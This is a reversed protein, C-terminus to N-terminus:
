CFVAYSVKVHSSNLRTSKRDGVLWTTTTTPVPADPAWPRSRSSYAHSLLRMRAPEPQADDLRPLGTPVRVPVEPFEQGLILRDSRFHSTYPFRVLHRATM